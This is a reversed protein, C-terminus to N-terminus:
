GMRGSERERRHGPIMVDGAGPARIFGKDKWYNRERLRICMEVEHLRSEPLTELIEIVAKLSSADESAYKRKADESLITDLPVNEQVARQGLCLAWSDISFRPDKDASPHRAIGLLLGGRDNNVEVVFRLNNMLRLSGLDGIVCKQEFYGRRKLWDALEIALQEADRVTVSHAGDQTPRQIQIGEIRPLRSRERTNVSPRHAPLKM